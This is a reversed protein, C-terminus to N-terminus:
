RVFFIKFVKKVCYKKVRSNYALLAYFSFLLTFLLNVADIKKKPFYFLDGKKFDNEYTEYVIKRSPVSLIITHGKSPDHLHAQAFNTLWHKVSDDAAYDYNYPNRAVNMTTLFHGKEEVTPQYLKNQSVQLVFRFFANCVRKM